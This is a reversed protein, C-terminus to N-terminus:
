VETMCARGGKCNGGEGDSLMSFVSRKLMVFGPLRVLSSVAHTFDIAVLLFCRKQCGGKWNGGRGM